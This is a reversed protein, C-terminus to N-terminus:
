SPWIVSLYPATERESAYKGPQAFFNSMLEDHNSVVEGPLEVPNQSRAFGIFETPIVRGQLLCAYM